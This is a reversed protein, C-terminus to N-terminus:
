APEEEEDGEDEDEDEPRGEEEDEDTEPEIDLRVSVGELAANMERLAADGALELELALERARM